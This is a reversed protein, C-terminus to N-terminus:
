FPSQQISEKICDPDYFSRLAWISFSPGWGPDISDESITVLLFFHATLDHSSARLSRRRERERERESKRERVRGEWRCVEVLLGFCHFLWGHTWNERVRLRLLGKGKNLWDGRSNQWLPLISVLANRENLKGSACHYVILMIPKAKYICVYLWMYLLYAMKMKFYTTPYKIYTFLKNTFHPM